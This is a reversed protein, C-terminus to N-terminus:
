LRDSCRRISIEYKAEDAICCSRETNKLLEDKRNKFYLIKDLIYM